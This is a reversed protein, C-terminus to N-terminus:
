GGANFQITFTYQIADDEEVSVDSFVTRDMLTGTTSANFLGHEKIINSSTYTVTAISKYINPTAGEVQTGEVRSEVEAGLMTNGVDEATGDTGSAHYKYDNFTGYPGATGILAAVLDNVFATTVVKNCIVQESLVKGKRIHKVGLSTTANVVSKPQQRGECEPPRQMRGKIKNLITM